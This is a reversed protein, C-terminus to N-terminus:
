FKASSQLQNIKNYLKSLLDTKFNWFTKYPFFFNRFSYFNFIYSQVYQTTEFVTTKESSAIYLAKAETSLSLKDELSSNSM